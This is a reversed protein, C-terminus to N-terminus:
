NHSKNENQKRWWEPLNPNFRHWLIGHYSPKRIERFILAIALLFSIGISINWRPQGLSITCTSLIVFTFAWILEPTRSIRFINCFLFFHGVATAAVIAIDRPAFFALLTGAMLVAIDLFSIRFGPKFQRM